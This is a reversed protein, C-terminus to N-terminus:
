PLFKIATRCVSRWIGIRRGMRNVVRIGMKRKGWTQQWKSCELLIFYLSVPLTTLIFGTLEAMLPTNSFLPKIQSQFLLSITGVVFVGYIVIMLYDLLFAYIRMRFPPWEGSMENKYPEHILLCVLRVSVIM